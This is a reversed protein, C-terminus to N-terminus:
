LSQGGDGFVMKFSFLVAKVCIKRDSCLVNTTMSMVLIETCVSDSGSFNNESVPLKLHRCSAVPLQNRCRFKCLSVRDACDLNTLYSEAHLTNKFLKYNSCQINNNVDSHWKTGSM